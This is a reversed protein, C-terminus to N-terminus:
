GSRKLLEFVQKLSLDEEDKLIIQLHFPSCDYGPPIKNQHLVITKKQLYHTFHAIFSNFCIITGSFNELYSKLEVLTNVMVETEPYHTHIHATLATDAPGSIVTIDYKQEKFFDLLHSILERYKAPGVDRQLGASGIHFVLNSSNCYDSVNQTESGQMIIDASKEIFSNLNNCYVCSKKWIM